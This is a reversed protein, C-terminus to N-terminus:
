LLLRERLSFPSAVLSARPAWNISSTLGCIKSAFSTLARPSLHTALWPAWCLKARPAPAVRAFCHRYTTFRAKRQPRNEFKFYNKDPPPQRGQPAAAAAGRAERAPSGGQPLPGSLTQCHLGVIDPGSGRLPLQINEIFDQQINFHAAVDPLLTSHLPRSLRPM